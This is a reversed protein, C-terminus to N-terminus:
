VFCIQTAIQCGSSGNWNLLPSCSSGAERDIFVNM